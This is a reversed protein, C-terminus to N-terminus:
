HFEEILFRSGYDMVRMLSEELTETREDSYLVWELPVVGEPPNPEWVRIFWCDIPPNTGATQGPREPARVRM